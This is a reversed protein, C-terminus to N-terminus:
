CWACCSAWLVVLGLLLSVGMVAPARLAGARLTGGLSARPGDWADAVYRIFLAYALSTYVTSVAM